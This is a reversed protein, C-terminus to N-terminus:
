SKLVSLDDLAQQQAEVLKKLKNGDIEAKLLEKFEKLSYGTSDESEKISDFVTKLRSKGLDIDDSYTVAEDLYKVILDRNKLDHPLPM